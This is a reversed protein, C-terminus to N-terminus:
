ELAPSPQDALASAAPEDVLLASGDHIGRHADGSVAGDDAGGDV